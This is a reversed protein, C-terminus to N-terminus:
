YLELVVIARAGSDKLQYVLERKTDLRNTNVLVLATGIGAFAAVPYQNGNPLQIAIRDGSSL